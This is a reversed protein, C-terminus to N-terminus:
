ADLEDIWESMPVYADAVGTDDAARVPDPEGTALAGTEGDPAAKPKRNRGGRTGRRTRKRPPAGEGNGSSEAHASEGEVPLEDADGNRAAQEADVVPEPSEQAPRGDAEPVHIRPTRKRPRPAPREPRTAAGDGAGGAAAETGPAEVDETPAGDAQTAPKKRRKGGRSGRRTRKKAPAPAAEGAAADAESEPEPETDPEEVDADSAESEEAVTAAEEAAGKADSARRKAPARTPKEAESEFTIPAAPVEGGVPTAFAQGELVRGVAVTAKKGVRNAAGAVVVPFGDVRGVAAAADYLDVEVLKVDLQAGEEFPAAPALDTRRGEALVEFHDTHVHGEAPLLYFRRRTAEELAALREGGPGAVLALERPHLAVRYAQIRSGAGGAALARLKREIDLAVTADSVVIGDGGCTPCKRTMVERPGDTVNQRTM